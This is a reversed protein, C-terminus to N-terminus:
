KEDTYYCTLFIHLKGGFGNCVHLVFSQFLLVSHLLLWYLHTAQQQVIKEEAKWHLLFDQEAKIVVNCIIFCQDCPKQAVAQAISGSM